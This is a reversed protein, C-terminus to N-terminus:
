LIESLFEEYSINKFITYNSNPSCNIVNPIFGVTKMILDKYSSNINTTDGIMNYNLNGCLEKDIKVLESKYYSEILNGHKGGGDAGFLIIKKFGLKSLCAIYLHLSVCFPNPDIGLDETYIIQEKFDENFTLRLRNRLNFLNNKDSKTCIYINTKNNSLYNILRPLRIKIEYDVENRVTSSDYIISFNKNIKNLIYEQPIDFSSMSAWVCDFNKFEQIRNELEECSKGHLVLCIPKNLLSQEIQM